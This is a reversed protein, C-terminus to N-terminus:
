GASYSSVPVIDIVEDRLDKTHNFKRMTSLKSIIADLKVTDINGINIQTVTTGEQSSTGMSIGYLKLTTKIAELRSTNDAVLKTEGQGVSIEKMSHVQNALEAAIGEPKTADNENLIAQIHRKMDEPYKRLYNGCNNSAHALVNATPHISMYAKGLNGDHEVIAKALKRDRLEKTEKNKPRGM